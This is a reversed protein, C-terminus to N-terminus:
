HSKVKNLVTGLVKSSSFAELARVYDREFTVGDEIVLVIRDVLGAYAKADAVTTVPPLDILFVANPYEAALEDLFQSLNNSRVVQSPSNAQGTAPLVKLLEIGADCLADSAPVHKFLCDEIGVSQGFGFVEHIRPAELNLDVVVTECDADLALSIGLNATTMTTGSGKCPSTVGIVRLQDQSIREILAAQLLCFAEREASEAFGTVYANRAPSAKPEPEPEPEPESSPQPELPKRKPHAGIRHEVRSETRHEVDAEIVREVDPETVRDVDPENGDASDRREHWREEVAAEM